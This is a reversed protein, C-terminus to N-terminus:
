AVAKADDQNLLGMPAGSSGQLKLSTEVVRVFDKIGKGPRKSRSTNQEADGQVEKGRGSMGIKRNNRLASDSRETDKKRLTSQNDDVHMNKWCKCNGLTAAKERTKM